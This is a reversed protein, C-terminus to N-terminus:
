SCVVGISRTFTGDRSACRALLIVVISQEVVFAHRLMAWIAITTITSTLWYNSVHRGPPIRADLIRRNNRMLAVGANGLIELGVHNM